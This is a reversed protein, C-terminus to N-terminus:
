QIVFNVRLEEGGKRVVIYDEGIHTVTMNEIAGGAHLIAGNIVAMRSDPNPSWVLAQIELGM